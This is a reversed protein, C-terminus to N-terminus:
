NTTAAHDFGSSAHMGSERGECLVRLVPCGSREYAPSILLRPWGGDLYQASNMLEMTRKFRPDDTLLM